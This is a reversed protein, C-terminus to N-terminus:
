KHRTARIGSVTDDYRGKVFGWAVIAKDKSDFVIQPKYADDNATDLAEIGGWSVGSANFHRAYLDWGNIDHQTWVVYADGKRDMALQPYAVDGLAPNDLRVPESWSDVPILVPSGVYSRTGVSAWLSRRESVNDYSAWVLLLRDNNDIAIAPPYISDHPYPLSGGVDSWFGGLYRWVNMQGKYNFQSVAAVRTGDPSLALRLNKDGCNVGEAVGAWSDPNTQFERSSLKGNECWAALAKNDPLRLLQPQSATAAGSLTVTTGSYMGASGGYLAKLVGGKMYTALTLNSAFSLDYSVALTNTAGVETICIWPPDLTLAAAATAPKQFQGCAPKLSSAENFLSPWAIRNNGNAAMSLVPHRAPSAANALSNAESWGAGDKGYRLWLTYAPSALTDDYQSWVVAVEGDAGAALSPGDADGDVRSLTLPTIWASTAASASSSESGDGGGCATLVFFCTGVVAIGTLLNESKM